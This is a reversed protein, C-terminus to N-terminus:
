PKAGRRKQGRGRNNYPRQFRFQPPGYNAPPQPFGPFPMPPPPPLQAGPANNWNGYQRNLNNFNANRPKGRQKRYPIFRSQYMDISRLKTTMKAEEECIRVDENLESGFLQIQPKQTKPNAIKKYPQPLFEKVEEKRRKSIENVSLHSLIRIVDLTKIYVARAWPVKDDMEFPKLDDAIRGMAAMATMVWSQMFGLSQDRSKAARSMTGTLSDPISPVGISPCNAPRKYVDRIVKMDEWEIASPLNICNEIFQALQPDIDTGSNPDVKFALNLAAVIGEDQMEEGQQEVPATDGAQQTRDTQNAGDGQVPTMSNSDSIAHTPQVAQTSQVTAPNVSVTAPARPRVISLIEAQQKLIKAIDLGQSSSSEKHGKYHSRKEKQRNDVKHLQKEVNGTETDYGPLQLPQDRTGPRNTVAPSIVEPPKDHVVTTDEKNQSDAKENIGNKGNKRGKEGAPSHSHSGSRSRGPM